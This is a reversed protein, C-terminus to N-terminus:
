VGEFFVGAMDGGGLGERNKRFVGHVWVVEVMRLGVFWRFLLDCEVQEMLLRESRVTYLVQLLLDRVLKAPGISPRGNAAYLRAFEPAVEELVADVIERITRLPHEQPVRQEPSIYSYM